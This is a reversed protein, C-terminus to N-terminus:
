KRDLVQFIRDTDPIVIVRTRRDAILAGTSDAAPSMIALTSGAATMRSSAIHFDNQLMRVITTARKVSIDWNDPLSDMASMVSDTNAVHGEITFGADPVDNFVRALRGVVSRAKTTLTYSNSDTFLLSDSIDVYVTGRDLKIRVVSDGLGGLYAKLNMLVAMNVSDRRVVAAHLDQMYSDKAGINDMSKRLGEAQASSLASLDILQKRLMTINEKCANLELDQSKLQTQAATKQRDLESNKDQCSKLTQESWAYLSDTKQSHLQLSKFKGASVCSVAASILFVLYIYAPRM